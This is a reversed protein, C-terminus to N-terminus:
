SKENKVYSAVLKLKKQKNTIYELFVPLQDFCLNDVLSKLSNHHLSPQYTHV